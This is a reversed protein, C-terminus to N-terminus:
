WFIKVKTVNKKIFNKSLWKADAPPVRVCGHSAHHNPVSNSGHIAYGGKFFMCYPMKAGGKGIPYKSSKCGPGGKRYVTYTGTPTRCGRGIDACYKKGGSVKGWKLLNGAGSYAAWTRKSLNIKLVRQGPAKIQHSPASYGSKGSTKKAM